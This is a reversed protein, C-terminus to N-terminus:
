PDGGAPPDLWGADLGVASDFLSYERVTNRIEYGAAVLDAAVADLRAFAADRGARYVRLTVFREEHGDVAPKYANRSLRAGHAACRDRLATRDAGAPLALKVHFEFYCDPPFTRAAADTDPVGDNAAVAEFKVREVAFGAGRLGRAVAAVVRAADALEGRAYSATMLQTPAAGHPLEILVPKVGLAACAARFAAEGGGAAVTVHGEFTGRGPLGALAALMRDEPPTTM